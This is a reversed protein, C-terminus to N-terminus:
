REDDRERALSENMRRLAREGEPDEGVPLDLARREDGERLRRSRGFDRIADLEDAAANIKHQLYVGGFFFTAIGSIPSGIRNNLFHSRLIRRARFIAFLTVIGGALQMPQTLGGKGSPDNFAVFFVLVYSILILAPAIVGLKAECDLSDLFRRRALLWFPLYLGLTVVAIAFLGLVTFRQSAFTPADDPGGPIGSTEAPPAYPNHEPEEAM